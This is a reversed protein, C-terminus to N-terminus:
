QQDSFEKWGATRFKARVNQGSNPQVRLRRHEKLRGAMWKDFAAEDFM